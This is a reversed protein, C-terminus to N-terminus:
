EKGSLVRKRYAKNERGEKNTYILEIELCLFNVIIRNYENSSNIERNSFLPILYWMLLNISIYLKHLNIHIKLTKIDIHITAQIM